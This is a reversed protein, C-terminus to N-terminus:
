WVNRLPANVLSVLSPSFMLRDDRRMARKLTRIGQQMKLRPGREFKLSTSFSALNRVEQGETFILPPHPISNGPDIPSAKGVFSGFVYSGSRPQQARHV